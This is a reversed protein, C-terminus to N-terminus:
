YSHSIQLLCKQLKELPYNYGIKFKNTFKLKKKRQRPTNGFSAETSRLEIQIRFIFASMPAENDLTPYVMQQYSSVKSRYISMNNKISTLSAM